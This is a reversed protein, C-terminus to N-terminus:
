RSGLVEARERAIRADIRKQLATFRLDSKLSDFQPYDVLQSSYPRGMWGIAVAKELFRLAAGGQGDLARITAVDFELTGAYYFQSRAENRAEVSTRERSCQLVAKSEPARGKARLALAVAVVQANAKECTDNMAPRRADYLAVLRNWDRNAALHFFGFHGDPADWLGAGAAAIRQQLLQFDASYFPTEFQTFAAPIGGPARQELGIIHYDVAMFKRLDPLTPDKALGANAHAIAISLDGTWHGISAYFRHTQAEPGGRRLYDRAAQVAERQRGAAVLAPVLNAIPMAWLPEIEAAALYQDLAEDHRGLQDFQVALWSRIDARSPDLLVARKLPEIAQKPPLLLGLAAFGDAADPALRIAERAHM